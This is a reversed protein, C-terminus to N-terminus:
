FMNSITNTNYPLNGFSDMIKNSKQETSIATPECPSTGVFDLPALRLVVFFVIAVLHINGGDPDAFWTLVFCMGCFSVNM